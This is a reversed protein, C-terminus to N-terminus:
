KFRHLQYSTVFQWGGLSYIPFAYPLRRKVFFFYPFLFPELLYLKLREAISALIQDPTVREFAAKFSFDTSFQVLRVM